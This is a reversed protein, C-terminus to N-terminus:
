KKEFCKPDMALAKMALKMADETRGEACAKKYDRVLKASESEKCEECLVRATLVILLRSSEKTESRVRFMRDFQPLNSLVPLRSEQIVTRSTVPGAIVISGNHPVMTDASIETIHVEPRSIFDTAPDLGGAVAVPMAPPLKALTAITYGFKLEISKKDASVRPTFAARQGVTITEFRPKREIGNPGAILELGTQFVHTQGIEVCAAQGDLTTLKPMALVNARRDGAVTEMLAKVRAVTLIATPKEGLGYETKIHAVLTEDAEVVRMEIAVQSTTREQLSRLAVILEAVGRHVDATQTVVLAMAKDDFEITGAGGCDAWSYPKVYQVVLSQLKDANSRYSPPLSLKRPAPETASAAMIQPAPSLPSPVTAPRYVGLNSATSTPAYITAILDAVPYAKTEPEAASGLGLASLLLVGSFIWKLM